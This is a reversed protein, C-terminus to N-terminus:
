APHGVEVVRIGAARARRVMDATGRGGPFAVVLDPKGEDLMRQNRLPGAAKGKTEWEAKFPLAVIKRSDAWCQAFSDAGSAAGHIILSIVSDSTLNDLAEFLLFREREAIRGYHPLQDSPCGRPIRGYDRGGCVLVRM